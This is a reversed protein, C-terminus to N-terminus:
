STGPGTMGSGCALSAGLDALLEDDANGDLDAAALGEPNAASMDTWSGSDYLYIGSGGFDVAAEDAGDGDFDGVAHKPTGDEYYSIKAVIADNSGNHTLDPGAMVPFTANDSSTQGTVYANGSGDM